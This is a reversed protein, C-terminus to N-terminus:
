ATSDIITTIPVEVITTQVTAATLATYSELSKLIYVFEPEPSFFFM